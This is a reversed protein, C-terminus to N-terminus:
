YANELKSLVFTNTGSFSAGGNFSVGIGLGATTSDFGSSTVVAGKLLSSLGTTPQGQLALGMQLVASTGSGVSRFFAWVEFVGTDTAATGASLTPTGRSTDATTGATGTRV